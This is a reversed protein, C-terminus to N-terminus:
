HKQRDRLRGFRRTRVPLRAAAYGGFLAAAGTPAAANAPQAPQRTGPARATGTAQTTPNATSTTTTTAAAWIGTTVGTRTSFQGPCWHYDPLPGAPQAEALSAAGLGALGFGATTILTAAAVRKINM